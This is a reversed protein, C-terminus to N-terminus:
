DNGYIEKLKHWLLNALVRTRYPATSRIDDIPAIDRALVAQLDAPRNWRTGRNLETEVARCRCVFPAVSNAVVRWGCNEPTGRDGPIGRDGPTGGDFQVVAVGVKTIAQAARAGVKHFWQMAHRRGRPLRIAVILEDPRRLTQKYGTYYDCLPVGRRGGAASQLLVEADYAMLVPVGDAAPSANAINGAWTGRTQIQIAGVQRAADALLPFERAATADRIVDWYTTTAGLELADDTWRMPRLVFDLPSLDLLELGEHIRHHWSVMLDTGGAIPTPPRPAASMLRLADDLTPPRHVRM